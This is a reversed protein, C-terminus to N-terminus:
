IRRFLVHRFFFGIQLHDTAMDALTGGPHCLLEPAHRFQAGIPLGCLDRFLEERGELLALSLM